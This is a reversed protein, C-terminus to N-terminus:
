IQFRRGRGSKSCFNEITKVERLRDRLLNHLGFQIIRQQLM